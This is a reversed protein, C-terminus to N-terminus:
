TRLVSMAAAPRPSAGRVQAQALLYVLMAGEVYGHFGVVAFYTSRARAAGFMAFMALAVMSAAVLAIAPKGFDGVLSRWTMRFTLTGEQRLTEEPIIGLWFAYHVSDTFVHAMVLPLAVSAAAGPVLWEGVVGVDVGLAHMQVPAIAGSAIAFLAAGLPLLIVARNRAWVLAWIVVVGLNHVHVFGLRAATPHLICPVGLALVIAVAIARRTWTSAGAIAAAVFWATAVGIEAIPPGGFIRIAFIALAGIVICGIWTRPLERRLVLYRISSAVHPIGLILPSIALTAAPALVALALAFAIVLTARLVVRPDRKRVIGGVIPTTVVRRLFAGRM